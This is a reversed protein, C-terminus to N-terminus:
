KSSTRLLSERWCQLFNSPDSNLGPLRFKIQVYHIRFPEGHVLESRVEPFVLLKLPVHMTVTAIFLLFQPLVFFTYPPLFLIINFYFIICTVYWSTAGINGGNNICSQHSNCAHQGINGRNNICSQNGNCTHEGINGGNNICSQYSNCAYQGINGRSSICSQNGNCSCHGITNGISMCSQNGNCSGYSILNLTLAYTCADDGECKADGYQCTDPKPRDDAPTDPRPDPNMISPAETPVTSPPAKVENCTFSGGELLVWSDLIGDAVDAIALKIKNWGEIPTARATLKVTFGDAEVIQYQVGLETSIDNGVFYDKNTGYNVTNISVITEGDPLKAINEGNMFFAFADNFASGVYEDYEESGFVYDFSVEAAEFNDACKFEFEIVCADYTQADVNSQLDADGGLKWNKTNQDSDNSCFDAPTGSSMIIGSDPMLYEGTVKDNGVAHGNTFLNFCAHSSAQINQFQISGNPSPLINEVLDTATKTEFVVTFLLLPLSSSCHLQTM